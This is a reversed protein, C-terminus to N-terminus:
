FLSSTRCVLCVGCGGLAERCRLSSGSGTKGDLHFSAAYSGSKDLAAQRPCLSRAENRPSENRRKQLSSSRQFTRLPGARSRFGYNVLASM